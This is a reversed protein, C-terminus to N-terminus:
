KSSLKLVTRTTKIEIKWKKYESIVTTIQVVKSTWFHGKKM